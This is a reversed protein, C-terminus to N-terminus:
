WKESHETMRVSGTKFSPLNSSTTSLRVMMQFLFQLSLTRMMMKQYTHGLYTLSNRSLLQGTKWSTLIKTLKLRTSLLSLIILPWVRFIPFLSSSERLTKSSSEKVLTFTSKVNSYLHEFNTPAVGASCIQNKSEKTEKEQNHM